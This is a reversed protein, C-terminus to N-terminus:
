GSTDPLRIEDVVAGGFTLDSRDRLRDRGRQVAELTRSLTLEFHALREDVYDDTERRLDATESRAEALLTEAQQRSLAFVDSDSVLRGREREAGAVIEEADVRAQELVRDSEGAGQPLLKALEDLSDLLEQRNVVCSASMPMARADAVASRIEALKRHVDM